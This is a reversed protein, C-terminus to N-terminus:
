INISGLLPQGPSLVPSLLSSSSVPPARTPIELGCLHAALVVGVGLGAGSKRPEVLVPTQAGGVEQM